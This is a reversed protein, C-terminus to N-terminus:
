IIKCGTSDGGDGAQGCCVKGKAGNKEARKKRIGKKKSPSIL